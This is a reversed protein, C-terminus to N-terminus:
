ALRGITVSHTSRDATYTASGEGWQHLAYAQMNGAFKTLDFDCAYIVRREGPQMDSILPWYYARARRAEARSKPQKTPVVELNGFEDGCPLIIKFDANLLRLIRLAKEIQQKEFLDM